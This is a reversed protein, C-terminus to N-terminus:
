SPRRDRLFVPRDPLIPDRCCTCRYLLKNAFCLDFEKRLPYWAGEISVVYQVVQVKWVTLPYGNVLLVDRDITGQVNTGTM